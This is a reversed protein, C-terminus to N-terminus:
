NGISVHHLLSVLTLLNLLLIVTCILHNSLYLATNEESSSNITSLVAIDM